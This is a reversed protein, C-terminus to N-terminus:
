LPFEISQVHLLSWLGARNHRVEWDVVMQILYMHFMILDNTYEEEKRGERVDM